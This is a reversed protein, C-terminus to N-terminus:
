TEKNHTTKIKRSNTKEIFNLELEENKTLCTLHPLKYQFEKNISDKVKKLETFDSYIILIDVDNYHENKLFSGFLYFEFESKLKLTNIFGIFKEIFETLEM